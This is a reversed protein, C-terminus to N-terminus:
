NRVKELLSLAFKGFRSMIRYKKLLVREAGFSEKFRRVGDLNGSAGFNYYKYGENCAHEISDKLLLNIPRYIETKDLITSGWYFVNKGYYFNLIGAIIIDDKVALRLQVAPLGHKFMNIYLRLPHPPKKYGWKKSSKIYLKYYNIFDELSNGKLIEVGSKEANRIANRNKRNFKDKWLSDFGNGLFLVHTYNWESDILKIFPDQVSLDSLPPLSIDFFLCRGSVMDKLIKQLAESSIDCLSVIGGYGMPMSNYYNFLYKQKEMMPILIEKGDIEYLRTAIRYNYTEELIKAWAPSHFFYSNESNRVIEDWKSVPVNEIYKIKYISM